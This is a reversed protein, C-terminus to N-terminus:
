RILKFRDWFTKHVLDTFEGADLFTGHGQPCSEFMVHPQEDDFGQRMDEECFPCHIGRIRDYMKGTEVDGTDFVHEAMWKDRRLQALDDGHFWLGHCLSCREVSRGSHSVTEMKSYCKPCQM